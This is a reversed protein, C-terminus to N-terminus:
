AIATLVDVVVCHHHQRDDTYHPHRLEVASSYSICLVEVLLLLLDPQTTGLTGVAVLEVHMQLDSTICWDRHLVRTGM